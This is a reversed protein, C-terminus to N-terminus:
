SEDYRIRPDAWAYAVDAFLNGFVILLASLMTVAMIVPYDRGSVATVGLRGIGPWSFITETIYAGTVIGPLSIGILTIMPIVANRLAHIIVVRRPRLGKSRATRMYDQDLVDLLASRQYRSWSAIQALSLVITPLIMHHVVNLVADIGTYQERVSQMGSAPFLNLQFSFLQLMLLAMWFIPVSIGVLALTSIVYDVVTYRKLASIVGIPVAVVFSLLLASGSLLLTNPLRDGIEQSVPRRTRFSYGLDGSLTRGLWSAYRVYVPEDLGLSTRVQALYEPDAGREPDVYMQTADGPAIEIIGFTLISIVILLPISQALRGAIFRIM